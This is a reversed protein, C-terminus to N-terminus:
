AKRGRHEWGARVTIWLSLVMLRVDLAFSRKRIYLLDYRFKHRRTIDRRAYVQAIGTLGPPIVHRAEYGPIDALARLRGDGDTEIEAPMLARPGVFSMAGCLISWLQPLEDMATARLVRGVRTIRTDTARAQLPGFLRDSNPIMSRFKWARFTRGGRGVRPQGYLVPGGDDLKIAIAIACMVPLALGLGISSVVVDFARKLMM